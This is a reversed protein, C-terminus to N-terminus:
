PQLYRVLLPQNMEIGFQRTKEQNFQEHLRLYFDFQTVGQQDAKFNTHWYNNMAYAFVTSSPSSYTKWKKQGNNVKREDIIEGSEFLACQPSVITVGKESNSIDLWRQVSFFDKNSAKLQGSEPSFCTDGVGIRTVPNKIAFPFAIHVAEKERVPAKDIIVKLHIYDLAPYNTIEYNVSNCGKMSCHLQLTNSVAEGISSQSLLRSFEVPPPFADDIGSVYFAQMLAKYSSSTDVWQTANFEVSVLAGTVSHTKFNYSSNEKTKNSNKLAAKKKGTQLYYKKSGSAPVAEAIFGYRNNNIKQIIVLNNQEDKLCFPIIGEPSKFEVYGNRQWPLSNLIEIKDSSPKGLLNSEAKSIYYAASDCFRKKYEWQNTTFPIDPESISNWSGWTHEHFMIINKRALYFLSTDFNQQSQHVYVKQLQILQESLMRTESEEKATSYAGDEWYPTFDGSKIALSKGYKNEFQEMMENVNAIVLRPSVYKENWAKVFDCLTSDVPGNDAKITYRLQIMEYPYNVSDLEFLYAAIKDKRKEDLDSFPITHFMSYGRGATWMLIKSKGDEALWYFPQDGLDHLTNGIRDGKDAYYPVYNPGNSFYRFGNEALTQVESWIVGPVDTLMVTNVPLKFENRLYIGYELLWQLEEPKCLGTMLNAYHGSLAIDHNRVAAIFKTKQEKTALQLFNDVAWLSEINWKFRSGEPYNKTQEVLKLADMINKNQIAAVEEQYHSYGIDNHSHHIIDVERKNVKPIYTKFEKSFKQGIKATISIVSSQSVQDIPLEVYNYGSNLKLKYTIGNLTLVLTDGSSFTHDAKIRLIQKIGNGTNVLLPSPEIKVKETYQYQFIMLWDNSNEAKGTITFTLPQEKNLLKRPIRIFLDGFVDTHVDTVKANFTAQVSDAGTYTWSFPPKKKQPTTITVSYKGNIFLDFNRNATSTGSSHGALCYFYAYEDRFNDPLKVSQWSISKKGDTCRTLMAETAFQQYSSFYPLIEGSVYKEFGGIINISNNGNIIFQGSLGQCYFILGLIIFYNKILSITKKM